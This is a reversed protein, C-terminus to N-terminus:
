NRFMSFTGTFVGNMCLGVLGPGEVVEKVLRKCMLDINGGM